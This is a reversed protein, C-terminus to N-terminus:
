DRNSFIMRYICLDSDRAKLCRFVTIMQYLSSPSFLTFFSFLLRNEGCFAVEATLAKRQAAQLESAVYM